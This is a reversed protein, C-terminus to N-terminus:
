FNLLVKNVSGATRNAVVARVWVLNSDFTYHDTDTATTYSIADNTGDLKIPFWDTSSPSDALSGEIAVDGTFGALYIAVTHTANGSRSYGAGKFASGTTDVAVSTLLTTSSKSM